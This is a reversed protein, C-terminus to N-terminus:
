SPEGLRSLRILIRPDERDEASFVHRERIQRGNAIIAARELVEVLLADDLDLSGAGGWIRCELRLAVALPREPRRNLLQALARNQWVRAPRSRILRATGDLVVVEHMRGRTTPEGRILASWLTAPAASAGAAGM